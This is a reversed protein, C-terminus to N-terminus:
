PQAHNCEVPALHQNVHCNQKRALADWSSCTYGHSISTLRSVPKYTTLCKFSITVYRRYAQILIYTMCVDHASCRVLIHNTIRIDTIFVRTHWAVPHGLSKLFCGTNQCWDTTSLSCCCILPGPAYSDQTRSEQCLHCWVANRFGIKIKNYWTRMYSHIRDTMDFEDLESWMVAVVETVCGVQIEDWNLSNVWYHKNTNADQLSTSFWVNVIYTESSCMLIRCDWARSSVAM